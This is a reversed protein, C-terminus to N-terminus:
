RGLYNVGVPWSLQRWGPTVAGAAFTGTPIYFGSALLVSHAGSYPQGPKIHREIVANVIKNGDDPTLKYAQKAAQELEIRFATQFAAQPASTTERATAAPITAALFVPLATVLVARVLIRMEKGCM